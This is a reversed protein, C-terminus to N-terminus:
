KEVSKKYEERAKTCLSCNCCGDYRDWYGNDQLFKVWDDSAKKDDTESIGRWFLILNAAEAVAQLGAVQASLQQISHRQLENEERLAAITELALTEKDNKCMDCENKYMDCENKCMDCENEFMELKDEAKIAREIAEPWGTRAAAIFESDEKRKPKHLLRCIGQRCDDEDYKDQAVFENGPTPTWPGPTAKECIELDARLDRQESM